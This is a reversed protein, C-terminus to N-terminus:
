PSLSRPTKPERHKLLIESSDMFRIQPTKLLTKAANSSELFLHVRPQNLHTVGTLFIFERQGDATLV